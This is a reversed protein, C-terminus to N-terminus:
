DTDSFYYCQLRALAAVADPLLEPLLQALFVADVAVAVELVERGLAAVAFVYEEVLGVVGAVDGAGNEQIELGSHQVRDLRAGVLVDVVGFVEVYVLIAGAGAVVPAHAVAHALLHM